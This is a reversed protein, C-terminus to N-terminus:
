GQLKIGEVVKYPYAQVEGLLGKVVRYIRDDKVVYDLM